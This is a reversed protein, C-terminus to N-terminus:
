PKLAGRWVARASQSLSEQGVACRRRCSSSMDGETCTIGLYTLICRPPRHLMFALRCGKEPQAKRRGPRGLWGGGGVKDNGFGVLCSCMRCMDLDARSGDDRCPSSNCLPRNHQGRGDHCASRPSLAIHKPRRRRHDTTAAEPHMMLRVRALHVRFLARPHRRLPEPCGLVMASSVIIILRAAM